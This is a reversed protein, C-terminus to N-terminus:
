FGMDSPLFEDPEVNADDMEPLDIVQQPFYNNAPMGPPNPIGMNQQQPQPQMPQPIQQPQQYQQQVPQAQQIQEVPQPVAQVPAPAPTAYNQTAYGQPAYGTPVGYVPAGPMVPVILKNFYINFNESPQGNKDKQVTKKFEINKNIVMPFLSQFAEISGVQQIVEVPVGATKFRGKIMEFTRKVSEVQKPDSFDINARIVDNVFEKTGSYEGDTHTITWKIIPNKTLKAEGMEVDSIVGNYVGAPASKFEKPKAETLLSNLQSLNPVSQLPAQQGQPAYGGFGPVYGPQMANAGYTPYSQPQMQPQNQYMM